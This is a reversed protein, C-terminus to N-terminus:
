IYEYVIMYGNFDDYIDYFEYTECKTVSILEYIVRKVESQICSCYKMDSVMM